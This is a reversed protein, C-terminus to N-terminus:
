EIWEPKIRIKFEQNGRKALELVSISKLEPDNLAEWVHWKRGLLKFLMSIAKHFDEGEGLLLEIAEELKVKEKKTM